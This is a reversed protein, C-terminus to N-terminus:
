ALITWLLLGWPTSFPSQQTSSINKCIIQVIIADVLMVRDSPTNISINIIHYPQRQDNPKWYVANQTYAWGILSSTVNYHRRGNAPHMCLIIGTCDPTIGRDLYNHINICQMAIDSISFLDSNLSGFSVWVQCPLHQSYELSFQGQELPVVSYTRYAEHIM